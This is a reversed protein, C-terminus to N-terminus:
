ALMVNVSDDNIGDPATISSHIHQNCHKSDLSLLVTRLDLMSHRTASYSFTPLSKSGSSEDRFGLLTTIIKGHTIHHCLWRVLMVFVDNLLTQNRNPASITLWWSRLNKFFGSSLQNGYLLTHLSQRVALTHMHINIQGHKWRCCQVEWGCRQGYFLSSAHRKNLRHVYM